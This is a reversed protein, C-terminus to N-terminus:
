DWDPLSGIQEQTYNVIVHEGDWSLSALKFAMEKEGLGVFGGMELTVGVIEGETTMLVDEVDGIDEGDSSYVDASELEGVTVNWSQVVRDGDLVKILDGASAGATAALTFGGALAAALVANKLM